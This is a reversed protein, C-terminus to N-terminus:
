QAGIDCITFRDPISNYRLYAFVSKSKKFVHGSIVYTFDLIDVSFQTFQTTYLTM